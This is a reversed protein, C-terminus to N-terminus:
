NVQIYVEGCFTPLEGQYKLSFCSVEPEIDLVVAMVCPSELDPVNLCFISSVVHALYTELFTLAM